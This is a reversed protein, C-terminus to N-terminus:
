NVTTAGFRNITITQVTGNGTLTITNNGASFGTVAGDGTEFVVQSSPFTTSLTNPSISVPFNNPDSSVYSSDAFLVYDGSEIYIGHPQQTNTSGEEGIMALLQQSKLDALLTNVDSTVSATTVTKGLNITAIAFLVAIIVIVVLMEVLTFGSEQTQHLNKRFM